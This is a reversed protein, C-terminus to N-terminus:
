EYNDDRGRFELYLELDNLSRLRGLFGMFYRYDSIGSRVYTTSVTMRLTRLACPVNSLTLDFSGLFPLGGSFRLHNVKANAHVLAILIYTPM